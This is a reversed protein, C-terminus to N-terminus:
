FECDSEGESRFDACLERGVIDVLFRHPQQSEYVRSKSVGSCLLREIVYLQGGWLLAKAPVGQAPACNVRCCERVHFALTMLQDARDAVDKSFEVSSSPNNSFIIQACQIVSFNVAGLNSIAHEVSFDGLSGVCSKGSEERGRAADIPQVSETRGFCLSLLRRMSFLSSSFSISVMFVFLTCRTVSIRLFM